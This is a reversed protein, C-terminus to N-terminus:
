SAEAALKAQPNGGEDRMYVPWNVINTEKTEQDGLCTKRPQAKVRSVNTQEFLRIQYIMNNM